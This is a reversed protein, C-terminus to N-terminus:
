EREFKMWEIDDREILCIMKDTPGFRDVSHVFFNMNEFQPVHYSRYVETYDARVMIPYEIGKLKVEYRNM